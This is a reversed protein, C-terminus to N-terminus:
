EFSLRASGDGWVQVTSLDSDFDSISISASSVFADFHYREDQVTPSTVYFAVIGNAKVFDILGKFIISNPYKQSKVILDVLLGRTCSLDPNRRDQNKLFSCEMFKEGLLDKLRISYPNKDSSWPIGGQMERKFIPYILLSHTNTLKSLLYYFNYYNKNNEPHEFFAQATQEASVIEDYRSYPNRLWLSEHFLVAAKEFDTLQFFAPMLYTDSTKPDTLAFVVVHDEPVGMTASYKKVINNFNDKDLKSEDVRYYNREGSPFIQFLIDSKQQEPIDLASIKNILSSMGPIESADMPDPKVPINASFYTSYHGDSQLGGAGNGVERYANASFSGLLILALVLKKM